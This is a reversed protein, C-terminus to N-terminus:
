HGHGAPAGDCGTWGGDGAEVAEWEAVAVQPRGGASCTVAVAARDGAVALRPYAGARAVTLPEGWDGSAPDRLRAAVPRGGAAGAAEWLVAIRGDPLAAVEPHRVATTGGGPAAVLERPGFSRGGDASAAVWVGPEVGTFWAVWLTGDPAEALRAGTHPCGALAWGDESVLRGGDFRREGPAAALLRIDRVTERSGTGAEDASGADDRYALWVEGKRGALLATGCCQCAAPDLSEPPSFTRGDDSWATRLGMRGGSDDLWALALRGGASASSLYSHSGVRPEHLLAPASWTAGGDASRQFRLESKWKGPLPVPYAAVLTGDALLELAPPTEGHATTAVGAPSVPHPGSAAPGLRRHVVRAGDAGEEVSLVHLNGAADWRLTADHGPFTARLAPSASSSTAPSASSSTAPSASSVPAPSVGPAAAPEGGCAALALLAGAAWPLPRRSATSVVPAAAM